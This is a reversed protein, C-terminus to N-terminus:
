EYHEKIKNQYYERKRDYIEDEKTYELPGNYYGQPTVKQPFSPEYGEYLVVDNSCSSILILFIILFFLKFKM